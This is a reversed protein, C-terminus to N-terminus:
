GDNGLARFWTMADTFSKLFDENDNSKTPNVNELKLFRQIWRSLVDGPTLQGNVRTEVLTHEKILGTMPDIIYDSVLEIKLPVGITPTTTSDAFLGMGPPPLRFYFVQDLRVAGKKTLEVRPPITKEVLLRKQLISQKTGALITGVVRSYINRGRVLTEGLYGHLEVKELMFEAVPPIENSSANFLNSTEELLSTMIYYVNAASSESLRGNNQKSQSSLQPSLGGSQQLLLESLVEGANVGGMSVGRTRKVAGVLNSMLWKSDLFLSGDSSSAKFELQQIQKVIPQEKSSNDLIYVDSGRINWPPLNNTAEYDIILSRNQWDLVSSRTVKWSQGTGRRALSLSQYFNAVLDNGTLLLTGDSAFFTVNTAFLNPDVPSRRPDTGALMPIAQECFRTLCGHALVYDSWNDSGPLPIPSASTLNGVDNEIWGNVDQISSVKYFLPVPPPDAKSLRASAATAAQELLGGRLEKWLTAGPGTAFANQPFLPSKQINDTAAQIARFAQGIEPGNLDRGNWTVNRIRHIQVKSSDDNVHFESLGQLRNNAGSGLIPVTARWPVRICSLKDDIVLQCNVIQSTNEQGIMALAQQAATTTLVLVDSLSILEERSQLLTIEGNEATTTEENNKSAPLLVTLQFDEAYVKSATLSTLPRILTSPLQQKLGQITEDLDCLGDFNEALGEISSLITSSSKDHTVFSSRAPSVTFWAFSNVSPLPSRIFSVCTMVCLLMMKPHVHNTSASKM